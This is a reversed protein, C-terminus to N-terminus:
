FDEKSYGLLNEINNSVYSVSSHEDNNWKFLVSDGINFLELLNQQQNFLLEFKNKSEILDNMIFDIRKTKEEFSLVLLLVLLSAGFMMLGYYISFKTLKNYDDTVNVLM